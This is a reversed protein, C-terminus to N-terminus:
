NHTGFIKGKPVYKLYFPLHEVSFSSKFLSQFVKNSKLKNIILYKVTLTGFTGFTGINKYNSFIM